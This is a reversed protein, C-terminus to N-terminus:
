AAFQAFFGPTYYEAFTAKAQDTVKKYDKGQGAYDNLKAVYAQAAAQVEAQTQQALEPTVQGSQKAQNFSDSIKAMNDDFPKQLKTTITNAEWHAQSKLLATVGIIGAAVGITIPNTMMGVLAGHSTVLGGGAYGTLPATGAAATAGTGALPAVTDGVGLSAGGVTGAAATDTLAGDSFDVLGGTTNLSSLNSLAPGAIGPALAKYADAANSITQGNSGGGIGAIKSLIGNGNVQGAISKLTDNIATARAMDGQALADAKQQQLDAIQTASWEKAQVDQDGAHGIDSAVQGSASLGTAALQQLATLRQQKNTNFTNEARSYDQNLYKNTVDGAASLYSRAAGGSLDLGEAGARAGANKQNQDLEYAYSPDNTLQNFDFSFPDTLGGGPKTGASLQDLAGGGATMYPNLTDKQSQLTASTIGPIANGANTVTQTADNVGKVENGTAANAGLLNTVGGAATAGIPILGTLTPDAPNLAKKIEDLTAM